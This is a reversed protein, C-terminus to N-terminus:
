IGCRDIDDFGQEESFYSLGLGLRMLGQHAPTGTETHGRFQSGQAPGAERQTIHCCVASSWREKTSSCLVGKM